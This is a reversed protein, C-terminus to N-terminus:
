YYRRLFDLPMMRIILTLLLLPMQRFIAHAYCAYCEAGDAYRLYVRLCLCYCLAYPACIAARASGRLSFAASSFLGDRFPSAHCTIPPSFPPSAAHAAVSADAFYLPMAISVHRLRLPLYAHRCGDAAIMFFLVYRMFFFLRLM